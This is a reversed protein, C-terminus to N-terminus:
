GRAMPRSRTPFQTNPSTTLREVTGTNNAAQGYLNSVGARASAFLVRRSDPTWVPSGDVAPTDTLRTLTQRALDWIWIDNQQDRIDLAM